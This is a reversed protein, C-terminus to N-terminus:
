TAGRHAVQYSRKAEGVAKKLEAIERVIEEFEKRNIYRKPMAEIYLSLSDLKKSIEEMGGGGSGTPDILKELKEVRVVIKDFEDKSVDAKDKVVNDGLSIITLTAVFGFFLVASNKDRRKKNKVALVVNLDKFIDKDYLKGAFYYDYLTKIFTVIIIAVASYDSMELLM